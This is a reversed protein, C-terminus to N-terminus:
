SLSYTDYLSYARWASKKKGGSGARDKYVTITKERDKILHFFQDSYRLGERGGDIFVWLAPCRSRILLTASEADEKVVDIELGPDALELHKPRVFSAFNQSEVGSSSRLEVELLVNRAGDSRIYAALDLTKLKKSKGPGVSASFNDAAVTKGNVDTLTWGVEGAAKERLDNVVHIDVTGKSTDEVATILLPGFFRRAMYNLAKWNGYYDILSWNAVPWCDNLQWYLTGMGRPMSRRWHEVAYKMAMGQLIQSTWLTMDHNKPLRFWSLMYLIITENGIGSRQHLEMVYSTINRNEPVTYREVVRPEPFSQFGFESNFRHECSYYWEFPKRGHWVGWLHADGWKPNNVDKRNGKPSHPSSPWYDRAPDHKEVLSPLLRDFLKKYEAWSMEGADRDPGVLGGIQEIENNGCWLAICAHHRLRKINDAAEAKVTELWEGDAAPYASCAFMYDQWVCLGYETCLEYFSDDEYIGGGWVRLMNMNAERASSLLFDYDDKGLRSVFTDAPIWNAGKAFFPVGNVEFHFSEGWEDEERKLVLTRLGLTKEESDLVKDEEDRLEIKLKYSNQDGMNNPWWLKPNKISFATEGSNKLAEAEKTHLEEGQYSLVAKIRLMDTKFRIIITKLSVQVHNKKSHDQSIETELIRGKSYAAIGVSRWIGCTVAM